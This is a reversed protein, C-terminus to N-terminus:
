VEAKIITPASYHLANVIDDRERRGIEGFSYRDDEIAELADADILRGHKEPLSRIPCWEPRLPQGPDPDWIRKSIRCRGIGIQDAIFCDECGRPMEMGMLVISM